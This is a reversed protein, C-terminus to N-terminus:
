KPGGHTTLCNTSMTSVACASSATASRCTHSLLVPQASAALHCKGAKGRTLICTTMPNTPTNMTRYRERQPYVTARHNRARKKIVWASNSWTKFMKAMRNARRTVNPNTLTSCIKEFTTRHHHRNADHMSRSGSLRATPREKLCEAKGRDSYLNDDSEDIYEYHVSAGKQLLCDSPQPTTGEQDSLHATPREKLCEQGNEKVCRTM